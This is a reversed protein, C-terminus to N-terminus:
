VRISGKLSGRFGSFGRAALAGETLLQLAVQWQAGTECASVASNLVAM